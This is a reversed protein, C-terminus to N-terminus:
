KVCWREWMGKFAQEVDRAMRAGDMLGSQKMRERMGARMRALGDLDAAKECAIRVYDGVDRAVWGDVRAGALVSAGMRAVAKNGSLTVVPVGMWLADCTTTGGCFPFPDLAVDIRNLTAFYDAFARREVFEIRGALTVGAGAAGAQLGAMARERFEGVPCFLLLRSREVRALIEGWTRLSADSVKAFNNLCGFTVFGNTLAPLEGVAPAEAATEYCWYTKLRVTKESYCDDTGPPDLLSDSLRYDMASLGTTGPYALYCVQVPAPKRAFVLPRGGATHMNLDVLIDIGDARVREALAADSLGAVEYWEDCFEKLEKAPARGGTVVSYFNTEFGARDRNALLPRLFRVVPHGFPDGSVYGVKL